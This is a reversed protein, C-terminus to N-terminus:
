FPWWWRRSQRPQQTHQIQQTQQTQQMPNDSGKTTDESVEIIKKGAGNKKVVALAAAKFDNIPRADEPEHYEGAVGVGLISRRNAKAYAELAVLRKDLSELTEQLRTADDVIDQLRKEEKKREKEKSQTYEYVVLTGSVGFIFSESLLDAGRSLAKEEELPSISRVRFGSSWITLRTTVQNALQGISILASRSYPNKVAQHKVQKAMPKSLTKIFLSM